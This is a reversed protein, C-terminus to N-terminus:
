NTFRREAWTFIEEGKGECSQRVLALWHSTPENLNRRVYLSAVSFIASEFIDPYKHVLWNQALTM